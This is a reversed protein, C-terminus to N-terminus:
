KWEHGCSQCQFYRKKVPKIAGFLLFFLGMIGRRKEIIETYKPSGCQPCTKGSALFPEEMPQANGAFGKLIERARGAENESVYLKHGAEALALHPMISGMNETPMIVIIDEAELIERASLALFHDSSEYICVTKM